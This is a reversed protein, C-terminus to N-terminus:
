LMRQNKSFDNALAYDAPHLYPLSSLGKLLLLATARHSIKLLSAKLRQPIFTDRRQSNIVLDGYMQLHLHLVGKKVLSIIELPEESIVNM